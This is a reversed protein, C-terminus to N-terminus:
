IGRHLGFLFIRRRDPSPCDPDWNVPAGELGATTHRPPVCRPLGCTDVLKEGVKVRLHRLSRPPSRTCFRSCRMTNGARGPPGCVSCFFWFSFIPIVRDCFREYCPVFWRPPPPPPPPFSLFFFSLSLADHHDRTGHSRRPVHLGAFYRVRRGRMLDDVHAHPIRITCTWLTTTTGADVAAGLPRRDRSSQSLERASEPDRMLFSFVAIVIGGHICMLTGAGERTPLGYMECM